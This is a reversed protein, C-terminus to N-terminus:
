ERARVQLVAILRVMEDRVSKIEKDLDVKWLAFRRDLMEELVQRMESAPRVDSQSAIHEALRTAESNQRREMEELKREVNAVWGRALFAVLAVLFGLVGQLVWLVTPMDAEQSM